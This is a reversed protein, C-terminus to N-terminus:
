IWDCGAGTTESRAGRCLGGGRDAPSAGALGVGPGFVGGVEPDEPASFLLVGGLAVAAGKGGAMDGRVDESLAVVNGWNSETEGEELGPEIWDFEILDVLIECLVAAPWVLFKEAKEDPEAVDGEANDASTSTNESVGKGSSSGTSRSLHPFLRKSLSSAPSRSADATEDRLEEKSEAAGGGIPRLLALLVCGSRARGVELRM